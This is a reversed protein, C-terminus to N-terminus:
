MYEANIYEDNSLRISAHTGTPTKKVLCTYERAVTVPPLICTLEIQRDM